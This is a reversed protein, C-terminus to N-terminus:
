RIFKHLWLPCKDCEYGFYLAHNDVFIEQLRRELGGIEREDQQKFKLRCGVLAKAEYRSQNFWMFDFPTLVMYVLSLIQRRLTYFLLTDYHGKLSACPISFLWLYRYSVRLFTSQECRQMAAYSHLTTWCSVHSNGINSLHFCIPPDRKDLIPTTKSTFVNFPWSQM